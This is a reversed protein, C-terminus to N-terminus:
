ADSFVLNCRFDYQLVIDSSDDFSQSFIDSFITFSQFPTWEFECVTYLGAYRQLYNWGNLFFFVQHDLQDLVNSGAVGLRDGVKESVEVLLRYAVAQVQDLRHLQGPQNSKALPLYIGEDVVVEVLLRPEISIM